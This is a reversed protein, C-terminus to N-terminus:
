KRSTEKLERERECHSTTLNKVLGSSCDKDFLTRTRLNSNETERLCLSLCTKLHNGNANCHSTM